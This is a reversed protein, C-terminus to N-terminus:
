ISELRVGSLIVMASFVVYFKSLKRSLFFRWRLDRMRLDKVRLDSWLYIRMYKYVKQRWTTNGGVSRWASWFAQRLRHLDTNM